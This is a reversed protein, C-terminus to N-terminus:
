RAGLRPLADEYSEITDTAPTTRIIQDRDALVVTAANVPPPQLGLASRLAGDPDSLLLLNTAGAPVDAPRQPAAEGVVVVTAGAPVAAVTQAILDDCQCREVLLVAAPAFAAVNRLQGTEDPLAVDDPLAADGSGAPPTSPSGSWAMAFLSVLTIMVAIMMIVMPLAASPERRQPIEPAGRSPDPGGALQARVQDAEAALESLDDPVVVDAPLEPLEPLHIPEDPSRDDPPLNDGNGHTGM